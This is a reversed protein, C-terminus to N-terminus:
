PKRSVIVRAPRILRDHLMYGKQMVELVTNEPHEESPQLTMAEHQEPDFPEGKPDIQQLGHDALVKTLMKLTLEKGERLAEATTAEDAIELGRELSDQVQLLDKMINELAFRRSKELDRILRKRLNDMEAQMRLMAERHQALEQEAAVVAEGMGKLEDDVVHGVDDADPDPDPGDVVGRRELDPEAGDPVPSRPERKQNESM